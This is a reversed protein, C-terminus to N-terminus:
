PMLRRNCTFGQGDIRFAGIVACDKKIASAASLEGMVWGVVIAALTLLVTRLFAASQILQKIKPNM